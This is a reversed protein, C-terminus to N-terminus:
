LCKEQENIFYKSTNRFTLYDIFFICFDYLYIYLFMTKYLKPSHSFFYTHTHIYIFLKLTRSKLSSNHFHM